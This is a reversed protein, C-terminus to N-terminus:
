VALDRLNFIVKDEDVNVKFGKVWFGVVVTRGQVNKPHYLIDKSADVNRGLRSVYLQLLMHRFRQHLSADYDGHHRGDSGSGLGTTHAQATRFDESQWQYGQEVCRRRCLSAVLAYRMTALFIVHELFTSM